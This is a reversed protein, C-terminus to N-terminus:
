AFMADIFTQADFPQLDEIKEGIGVFKVPMQLQHMVSLVIGGKATGDLKTLVIGTVGVTQQFQKAQQLANQGITADLVLLVEHPATTIQKSLVRSIKKLEEMLNVKTHLRGATDIILVDVGRAHAARIADFAVAAPDAGPQQRVLEAGVREAWIELQESAAARFTDAAALLVRHGRKQYQYALKGITTTKGTGNVGVVMIVWPKSPVAFHDGDSVGAVGDANVLRKLEECIFAKITDEDLNKERGLQHQLNDILELTTDVGIDSSILIEEIQELLEVDLRQRGKLVQQIRGAINERTKTLGAKLKDFMTM